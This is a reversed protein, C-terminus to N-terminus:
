QLSETETHMACTWKGDRRVWTSTDIADIEVEQGDKVFKSRVKYAVIATDAGIMRVEAEDENFNFSRIQGEPSQLMEQFKSKDVAMMGHSSTVICPFDTLSVATDVDKDVMAQWFKKELGLIEKNANEQNEM